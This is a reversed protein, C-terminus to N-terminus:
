NNMCDLLLRYLEEIGNKIEAIITEDDDTTFDANLVKRLVYDNKEPNDCLYFSIPLTSINNYLRKQVSRNYGSGWIEFTCSEHIFVVQIKIGSEKLPNNTLQFYSFDMQNEVVRNMFSYTNMDTELRSRTHKILSIVRRYCERINTTKMLEKYEIFFQKDM